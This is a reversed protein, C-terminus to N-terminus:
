HWLLFFHQPSSQHTCATLPRPSLPDAPDWQPPHSVRKYCLPSISSISTDLFKHSALQWRSSGTSDPNEIIITDGGHSSCGAPRRGVPQTLQEDGLSSPLPFAWWCAACIVKFLPWKQLIHGPSVWGGHQPQTGASSTIQDGSLVASTQPSDKSKVEFNKYRSVAEWIAWVHCTSLQQQHATPAGSQAATHQSTCAQTFGMESLNVFCVTQTMIPYNPFTCLKM